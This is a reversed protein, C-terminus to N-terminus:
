PCNRRMHGLGSCNHCRVVEWKINSRGRWKRPTQNPGHPQPQPNWSAVPPAAATEPEEVEAGERVVAARPRWETMSCAGTHMLSTVYSAARKTTEHRRAIDYAQALTHPRQELLKQVIEADGVANTFVEVGIADQETETRDSYAVSVKGYIDDRLVYTEGVKRVGQRLEIAVAAAHESSPDYATEMEEVLRSYDWQASRPNRHIVAGATGVLCFKLQVAM